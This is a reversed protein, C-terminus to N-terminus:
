SPEAIVVGTKCIDRCISKSRKSEYMLEDAKKLLAEISCREDCSDCEVVGCSFSLRFDMKTTSNHLDLNEQLRSIIVDGSIEDVDNIIVVFEDGGIRAIVDSERFTRKLIDATATLARDGESHGYKDNVTKMGDVDVFIFGIKSMKRNTMKMLQAALIFFGRRNKLGTLEDTVAMEELKAESEALKVIIERQEENIRDLKYWQRRLHFLLYLLAAAVVLFIGAHTTIIIINQQNSMAIRSTARESVSLGGLIVEESRNEGYIFSKQKDRIPVMYKLLADEGYGRITFSETLGNEFKKLANKEWEDPANAPNVSQLSIVRISKRTLGHLWALEAQQHIIAGPLVQTLRLGCNTFVDLDPLQAYFPEMPIWETLPVFVREHQEAWLMISLAVETLTQAESIFAKLTNQRITYLNWVLSASVLMFWASLPVIWFVHWYKAVMREKPKTANM